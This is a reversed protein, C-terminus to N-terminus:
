WPAIPKMGDTTELQLLLSALRAVDFDRCLASHLHYEFFRSAPEGFSGARLSVLMRAGPPWWHSPRRVSIRQPDQSSSSPGCRVLLDLYGYFTTTNRFITGRFKTPEEDHQTLTM